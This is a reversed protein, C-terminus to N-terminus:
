ETKTDTREIIKVLKLGDTEDKGIAWAWSDNFQPTSVIDNLHFNLTSILQGKQPDMLCIQGSRCPMALVYGKYRWGLEFKQISKSGLRVMLSEDLTNQNRFNYRWESDGNKADFAQVYGSNSLALVLNHHDVYYPAKETKFRIPHHWEVELTASNFKFLESEDITAFFIHDGVFSVSYHKM